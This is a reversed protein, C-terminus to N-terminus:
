SFRSVLVISCETKEKGLTPASPTSLCIEVSFTWNSGHAAVLLGFLRRAWRDCDFSRLSCPFPPFTVNTGLRLALPARLKPHRAHPCLAALPHGAKAKEGVLLLFGGPRPFRSDVPSPLPVSEATTPRPTSHGFPSATLLFRFRRNALTRLRL